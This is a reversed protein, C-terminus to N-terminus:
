GNWKEPDGPHKASEHAFIRSLIFKILIHQQEDEFIFSHRELGELVEQLSLKIM